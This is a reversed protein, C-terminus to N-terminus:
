TGDGGMGDGMEEGGDGGMGEGGIGDWGWGMGGRPACTPPWVTPGSRLGSRSASMAVSDQAITRLGPPVPM